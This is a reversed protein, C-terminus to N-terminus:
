PLAEAGRRAKIFYLYYEKYIIELLFLISLGSGVAVSVYLAAIPIGLGGPSIQGELKGCIFISSFMMIASFALELISILFEIIKRTKKPVRRIFVDISIHRYRRFGIPVALMVIWIMIYRALEDAWSTAGSFAYRMIVQCFIDVVMIGSLIGMTVMLVKEVIDLSKKIV